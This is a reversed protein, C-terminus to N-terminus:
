SPGPLLARRLNSSWPPAEARLLVLKIPNDGSDAPDTGCAVLTAVVFARLARQMLSSCAM